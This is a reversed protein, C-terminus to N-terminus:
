SEEPQIQVILLLDADARTGPTEILPAARKIGCVQGLGMPELKVRATERRDLDVGSKVARRDFFGDPSPDFRRRRCKSESAFQRPFDRM